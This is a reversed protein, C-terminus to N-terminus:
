RPRQEARLYWTVGPALGGSRMSVATEADDEITVHCAARRLCRAHATGQQLVVKRGAPVLLSDTQLTPAARGDRPSVPLGRHGRAAPLAPLPTTSPAYFPFVGYWLLCVRARSQRSFQQFSILINRMKETSGAWDSLKLFLYRNGTKWSSSKSTFASSFVVKCLKNEKRQRLFLLVPLHLERCEGFM